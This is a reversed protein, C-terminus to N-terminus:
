RFCMLVERTSCLIERAEMAVHGRKARRTRVRARRVQLAMGTYDSDHHSVHPNNKNTTNLLTATFFQAGADDILASQKREAAQRDAEAREVRLTHAKYYRNPIATGRPKGEEDLGGQQDCDPCHCWTQSPM